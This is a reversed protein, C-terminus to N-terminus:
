KLFPPQGNWASLGGDVLMIHGSIFSADDSALFLIAAAMDEAKGYRGLPIASILTKVYDENKFMDETMGTRTVAPCIANVRIGNPGQEVALARTMQVVAGKSVDYFFTNKDGGVGSISATYVINGRTKRLHPLAAKTAFISGDVNTGCISRWDDVDTEELTGVTSVGANSILLDLQGFREVAKAVAAEVESRKSVDAKAIDARDQPLEELIKELASDARDTLVVNAGEDILRRATAAGIGSAAGMVIAVKGDFRQYTQKNM